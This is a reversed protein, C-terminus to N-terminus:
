PSLRFLNCVDACTAKVGRQGHRKHVVAIKKGRKQAARTSAHQGTFKSQCICQTAWGCGCCPDSADGWLGRDRGKYNSAKDEGPFRGVM